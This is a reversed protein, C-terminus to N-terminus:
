SLTLSDFDPLEGSLIYNLIIDASILLTDIRRGTIGATILTNICKERMLKLYEENQKSAKEKEETVDLKIEILVM